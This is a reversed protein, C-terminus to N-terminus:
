TKILGDQKTPEPTAKPAPAPAAPPTLQWNDLARKLADLGAGASNKAEDAARTIAACLAARRKPDNRSEELARGVDDTTGGGKADPPVTKPDIGLLPLLYERGKERAVAAAKDGFREAAAVGTDWAGLAASVTPSCRNAPDDPPTTQAHLPAASLLLAALAPTALRRFAAPPCTM